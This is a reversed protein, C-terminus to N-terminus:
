SQPTAPRNAPHVAVSPNRQPNDRRGNGAMTARARGNQIGAGNNWQPNTTGHARYADHRGSQGSNRSRNDIRVDRPLDCDRRFDRGAFHAGGVVVPPGALAGPGHYYGPYDYYAPRYDYYYPMGCAYAYPVTYTDYGYSTQVPTATCGALLAACSMAVLSPKM